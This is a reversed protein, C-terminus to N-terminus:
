RMEEDQFVEDSGAALHAEIRRLTILIQKQIEKGPFDKVSLVKDADLSVPLPLKESVDKAIGDGLSIKVRENSM